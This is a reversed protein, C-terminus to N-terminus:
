VGVFRDYWRIKVSTQGVSGSTITVKLDNDGDLVDPDAELAFDGLDSDETLTGIKNGSVSSV